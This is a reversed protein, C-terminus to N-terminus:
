RARKLHGYPPLTQLRDDTVPGGITFHYLSQWTTGALGALEHVADDFFCGIGTGRMGAAEAELYLCQGILGCEWFLRRYMWPGQKLASDFEALMGLSFASAGAIQQHCSLQIAARQANAGVLHYLPLHEPCGDVASWLFEPRMVTKLEEPASPRRALLYLGPRLGEVRHVFLLLHVRAPYPWADFPPSDPRALCADLIRYFSRAALATVGDFAQASRRQLILEAARHDVALPPLPPLTTSDLGEEAPCPYRGLDRERRSLSKPHPGIRQHKSSNASFTSRELGEGRGKERPSLPQHEHAQSSIYFGIGEPLSREAGHDASQPGPVPHDRGEDPGEPWTRGSPSPFPLHGHAAPEQTPSPTLAQHAPRPKFCAQHVEEIAAWHHRHKGSLANAQGAWDGSGVAALIRDIPCAPDDQGQPIVLRCLLDPAEGEGAPFEATRDIGLLAAIDDDGWDELLEMRWGLLAAAYRLAGLAHGVDHQCYRFAREGYKWAERWHISSLGLMVGAFPLESRCRRELVHDHSQYHYLGSELGIVGSGAAVYAETPHLNGSSPNCRLAWRDGGAAKWASLGFSLELLLALSDLSLPRAPLCGPQFLEPYSGPETAATLPLPIPEAGAFRRFPDPQTSWDMFDPGAAYGEFRHKTRQHYARVSEVPDSATM